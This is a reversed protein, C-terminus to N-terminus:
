SPQRSHQQSTHVDSLVGQLHKAPFSYSHCDPRGASAKARAVSQKCWTGICAPLCCSAATLQQLSTGRAWTPGRQHKNTLHCVIVIGNPAGTQKRIHLRTVVPIETLFLVHKHPLTGM